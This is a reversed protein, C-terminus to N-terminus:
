AFGCGVQLDPLQEVLAVVDVVELVCRKLNVSRLRLPRLAAFLRVHGDGTAPWTLPSPWWNHYLTLFDCDAGGREHLLQVVALLDDFGPCASPNLAGAGAGTSPLAAAGGDAGGAEAAVAAPRGQGHHGVAPWTTGEAGGHYGQAASYSAGLHCADLWTLGPPLALALM